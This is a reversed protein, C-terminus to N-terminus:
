INTELQHTYAVGITGDPLPCTDTIMPTQVEPSGNIEPDLAIVIYDIETAGVSCLTEAFIIAGVGGPESPFFYGPAGGDYHWAAPETSRALWRKARIRQITNGDADVTDVRFRMYQWLAAPGPIYAGTRSVDAPTGGGFAGGRMLSVPAFSSTPDPTGVGPQSAFDGRGKIYGYSVPKIPVPAQYAPHTIGLQCMWGCWMYAEEATAGMGIGKLWGDNSIRGGPGGYFTPPNIGSCEGEIKLKMLVEFNDPEGILSPMMIFGTPYAGPLFRLKRGGNATADAVVSPTILNGPGVLEWGDPLTVGLAADAFNDYYIGTSIEIIM